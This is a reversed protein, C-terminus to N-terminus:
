SKYRYFTSCPLLVPAILIYPLLDSKRLSILFPIIIEIERGGEQGQLLHAKRLNLFIKGSIHLSFSWNLLGFLCFTTVSCSINLNCYDKDKMTVPTHSSSLKFEQMLKKGSVHFGVLKESGFNTIEEFGSFSM